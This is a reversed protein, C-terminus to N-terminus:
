HPHNLTLRVLHGSNPTLQPLQDAPRTSLPLWPSVQTRVQGLTQGMVVFYSILAWEGRWRVFLPRTADIFAPIALIATGVGVKFSYRM